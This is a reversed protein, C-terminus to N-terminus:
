EKVQATWGAGTRVRANARDIRAQTAPSIKGAEPKSLVDAAKEAEDVAVGGAILRAAIADREKSM